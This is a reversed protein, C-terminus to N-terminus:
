GHVVAAQSKPGNEALNDVGIRLHQHRVSGVASCIARGRGREEPGNARNM